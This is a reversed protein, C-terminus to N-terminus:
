FIVSFNWSQCPLDRLHDQFDCLPLHKLVNWNKMHESWIRTLCRRCAMTMTTCHTCHHNLMYLTAKAWIPGIGQAHLAHPTVHEHFKTWFLQWPMKAVLLIVFQVNKVKKTKWTMRLLLVAVISLLNYFYTDLLVLLMKIWRRRQNLDTFVRHLTGLCTFQATCSNMENEWRNDKLQDQNDLLHWCSCGFAVKCVCM